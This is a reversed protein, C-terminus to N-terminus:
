SWGSFRAPLRNPIDWFYCICKRIIGFVFITNLLVLHVLPFSRILTGSSQLCIARSPFWLLIILDCSHVFSQNPAEIFHSQRPYHILSSCFWFFTYVLVFSTSLCLFRPRSVSIVLCLLRVYVTIFRCSSTSTRYPGAVLWPLWLPQPQVDLPIWVPEYQAVVYFWVLRVVPWNHVSWTPQCPSLLQLLAQQPEATWNCLRTRHVLLVPRNWHSQNKVFINSCKSLLTSRFTSFGATVM